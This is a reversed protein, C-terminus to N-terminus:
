RRRPCPPPASPPPPPPSPQPGYAFLRPPPSPPPPPSPDLNAYVHRFAGDVYVLGPSRELVRQIVSCSAANDNCFQSSIATMGSRVRARAANVKFSDGGAFSEVELVANKITCNAPASDNFAENGLVFASLETLSVTTAFDHNFSTGDVGACTGLCAIESKACQVRDLTCAYVQAAVDQIARGTDTVVTFKSRKCTDFLYQNTIAEISGAPRLHYDNHSDYLQERKKAEHRAVRCAHYIFGAAAQEEHDVALLDNPHAPVDRAQMWAHSAEILLAFEADAAAGIEEGREILHAAADDFISSDYEHFGAEYQYPTRSWESWPLMTDDGTTPWPGCAQQYWSGNTLCTNSVNGVFTGFNDAAFLSATSAVVLWLLRIEPWRYLACFLPHILTTARM